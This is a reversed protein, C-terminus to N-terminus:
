EGASESVVEREMSVEKEGGRSDPISSNWPKLQDVFLKEFTMPDRTDRTDRATSEPYL